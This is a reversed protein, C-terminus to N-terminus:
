GVFVDGERFAKDSFLAGDHEIYAGEFFPVCPMKVARDQNGM